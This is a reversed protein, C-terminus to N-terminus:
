RRNAPGVSRAALGGLVGRRIAGFDAGGTAQLHVPLPVRCRLYIWIRQKIGGLDQYEQIHQFKQSTGQLDGCIWPLRQKKFDM